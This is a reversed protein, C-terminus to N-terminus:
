TVPTANLGRKGHKALTDEIGYAIASLRVFVAVINRKLPNLLEPLTSEASCYALL